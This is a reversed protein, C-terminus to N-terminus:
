SFTLKFWSEIEEDFPYQVNNKKMWEYVEISINEAGDGIFLDCNYNYCNYNYYLPNKLVKYWSLGSGEEETPKINFKKYEDNFDVILFEGVKAINLSEWFTNDERDSSFFTHYIM